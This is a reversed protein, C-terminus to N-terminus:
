VTQQELLIAALVEDQSQQTIVIDQQNLLIQARTVEADSIAASEEEEVDVDEWIGDNYKKGMITTDFTSLRIMNSHSVKGSLQSVAVCINDNNLQAYFM